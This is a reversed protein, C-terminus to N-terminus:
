VSPKAVFIQLAQKINQIRVRPPSGGYEGDLTWPMEKDSEVCIDSTQFHCILDSSMDQMLLMNIIGQLQIPNNPQRILFVEFLGDGMEVEDASVEVVGGVSTANTIMGYIFDDELQMEASKIKLHYTKISPLLKIGELVYAAHGFFNKTPQPTTYSVQTFAGFAAIYVFYRENFRGIDCHFINSGVAIRAADEPYKPISLSSAFDNTTGAPIYGLPPPQSLTMLGNIVEDLTGDGGACIIRDYQMGRAQVLQQADQASQTIHTTTEFGAHCLIDLVDILDDRMSEQGAKPNIIFLAKPM